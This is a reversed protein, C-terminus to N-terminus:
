APLLIGGFERHIGSGGSPTGLPTFTLEFQILGNRSYTIDGKDTVETKDVTFRWHNDDGDLIDIGLMQYQPDPVEPDDFELGIPNSSGDLIATMDALAVGYYLSLTYANAELFQMKFTSERSKEITRVAVNSGWRYYKDRDESLAETLGDDSIGGLDIWGTGWAATFDAPPTTGLAAMYAYGKLGARVDDDNAM